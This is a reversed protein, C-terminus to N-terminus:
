LVKSNLQQVHSRLYKNNNVVLMQESLSKMNVIQSINSKVKCMKIIASSVKM